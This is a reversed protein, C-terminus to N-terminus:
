RPSQSRISIPGGEILQLEQPWPGTLAHTETKGSPWRIEIEIAGAPETSEAPSEAPVPRQRPTAQDPLESHSSRSKGADRKRPLSFVLSRAQSCQYGDGATLQQSIVRGGARVTVMSGIADRESVTGILWVTLSDGRRASQNMLLATPGDMRGLVVDEDGDRDADVRVLARGLIQQAFFPGAEQPSVEEFASGERNRFLQTPMRYPRGYATLDEIHGNAVILDEWGDLDVDLFQTGFGLQKYSPGYLQWERSADLFRGPESQLSLVNPEDYFNTVLFDIRGDRNVDGAAIGMSGQANGDRDFAVGRAIGEDVFEVGHEDHGRNMLLANPTLDNAIFLDLRRDADLDFIVLGLGKGAASGSDEPLSQEIFSGDGRSLLLRDRQGQFDFPACMRLRGDQHRCARTFLDPATLYNTLYIDPWGDQNFDAAGLSTTWEREAPDSRNEFLPLTQEFFTGDGQNIFLRSLGFTAVILDPFGDQNLDSVSCGQSFRPEIIGTSRTVNEFQGAGRNRFIQDLLAPNGISEPPWAASQTCYLDPWGNLDYDLVALGGGTLDYMAKGPLQDLGANLFRFSFGRATAEEVFRFGTPRADDNTSSAREGEITKNATPSSRESKMAPLPPRDKAVTSTAAVPRQRRLRDVADWISDAPLEFQSLDFGRLLIEGPQLDAMTASGPRARLRRLFDEPWGARPDFSRALLCWGEAEPLDNLEILLRVLERIPEVSDQPRNRLRNRLEQAALLKISRQTLREAMPSQQLGSLLRIAPILAERRDPEQRLSELYCRVAGRPDQAQEAAQGRLQWVQPDHQFTEPGARWWDALPHQVASSATQDSEPALLPLEFLAQGAVIWAVQLEQQQQWARLAHEASKHLEGENKAEMALALELLPDTKVNRVRVSGTHSTGAEAASPLEPLVSSNAILLSSLPIASRSSALLALHDPDSRGQAILRCIRPIAERRRGCCALLEIQEREAEPVAGAEAELQRLQQEAETLRALGHFLIQARLLQVQARLSLPRPRAPQQPQHPPLITVAASSDSAPIADVQTSEPIASTSAPVAAQALLEGCIALADASRHQMWVSQALLLQATDTNSNHDQEFAQRLLAEAEAARREELALRARVLLEEASVRSTRQGPQCLFWVLPLLILCLLSALLALNVRGRRLRM